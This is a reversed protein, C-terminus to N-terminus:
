EEFRVTPQQQTGKGSSEVLKRFIGNDLAVLEDYKGNEAISGRELVVIEDAKVATSPHHSVSVITLGETDRLRVLTEIIAAESVTDLASTAEDLFLVSPKRLLARALCIRQLQGGGMAVSGSGGGVVTDFGRPLGHIASAIEAMEAAAEIRRSLDDKENEADDAGGFVINERITGQIIMTKQFMVAVQNRFSELTTRNIDIGDWDINGATPQRFRMLLDLITSKGSGSMGFLAVYTGKRITLQLGELVKSFASDYMFDIGNMRMEHKLPSLTSLSSSEEDDDDDVVVAISTTEEALKVGQVILEDITQLSGSYTTLQRLFTGFAGLPYKMSLALGMLTVFEGAEFNGRLSAIAFPVIILAQYVNAAVWYQTSVCGSWFIGSQRSHDFEALTGGELRDKAWAGANTTRIVPLCDVINSFTSVLEAELESSNKSAASARKDIYDLSFLVPILAFFLIGAYANVRAALAIGVVMQTVSGLFGITAETLIMELKGTQNVFADVIQGNTTSEAFKTGGAVVVDLIQARCVAPVKSNVLALAQRFWLDCIGNAFLVSGWAILAITGGKKDEETIGTVIMGFFTAELSPLSSSIATAIYMYAFEWPLLCWKRLLNQMIEVSSLPISRRQNLEDVGSKRRRRYTLLYSRLQQVLLRYQLPSLFADNDNCLVPFIRVTSSLDEVIATWDLSGSLGKRISHKMLVREVTLSCSKPLALSQMAAKATNLVVKESCAIAGISGDQNEELHSAERLSHLVTINYRFVYLYFAVCLILMEEVKDDHERWLFAFFVNISLHVSFSLVFSLGGWCFYKRGGLFPYVYEHFLGLCSWAILVIKAMLLFASTTECVCAVFFGSTAAVLFLFIGYAFLLTFEAVLRPSVKWTSTSTADSGILKRYLRLRCGPSAPTESAVGGVVAAEEVDDNK